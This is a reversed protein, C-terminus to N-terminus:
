RLQVARLPTSYPPQVPTLPAVIWRAVSTEAHPTRPWRRRTAPLAPRPPPLHRTGVLTHLGCPGPADADRLELRDEDLRAPQEELDVGVLADDPKALRDGFPARQRTGLRHLFDLRVQDTLIGTAHHMVPLRNVAVREVAAARDEGARQRADILRQPVDLALREPHRHVFQQAAGRAVADADVRMRAGDVRHLLLLRLAEGRELRPRVQAAAAGVAGPAPRSEDLRRAEHLLGGVVEGVSRSATPGSASMPM